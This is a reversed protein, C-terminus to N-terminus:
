MESYKGAGYASILAFIVAFVGFTIGVWPISRVIGGLAALVLAVVAYKAASVATKGKRHRHRDEYFTEFAERKGQAKISADRSTDREQEAHIKTIEDWEADQWTPTNMEADFDFM